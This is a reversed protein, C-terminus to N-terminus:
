CTTDHPFFDISDREQRRTKQKVFIENLPLLLFIFAWFDFCQSTFGVAIFSASSIARMTSLLYCIKHLNVAGRSM